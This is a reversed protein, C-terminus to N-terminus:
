VMHRTIGEVFEKTDEKSMKKPENKTSLEREAWHTIDSVKLLQRETTIYTIIGKGTKEDIEICEFGEVEKPKLKFKLLKHGKTKSTKTWGSPTKVKNIDNWKTM